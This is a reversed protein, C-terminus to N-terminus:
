NIKSLDLALQVERKISRYALVVAVILIIDLAILLYLNNLTRQRVLKGLSAGTTRIGLAYEPFIWIDKKLTTLTTSDGSRTSYVLSQNSKRQVSLIFQDKAVAPLPIECESRNSSGATKDLPL